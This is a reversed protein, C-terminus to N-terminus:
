IELSIVNARRELHDLGIRHVPVNSARPELHSFAKM